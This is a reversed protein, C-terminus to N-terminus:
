APSAERRVGGPGPRDVDAPRGAAVRGNQRAPYLGGPRTASLAPAPEGATEGGAQGTPVMRDAAAPLRREGTRLRDAPEGCLAVRGLRCLGRAGPRDASSEMEPEAKRPYTQRGEPRAM